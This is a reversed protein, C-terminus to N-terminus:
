EFGKFGKKVVECLVIDVDVIKFGYVILLELVILKGIVIGGIIGIVKFM